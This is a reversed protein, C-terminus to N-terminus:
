CMFSMKGNSINKFENHFHDYIDRRSRIENDEVPTPFKVGDIELIEHIVDDGGTESPYRHVEKIKWNFSELFKHSVKYGDADICSGMICVEGFPSSLYRLKHRNIKKDFNAHLLLGQKTRCNFMNPSPWEVFGNVIFGGNTENENVLFTFRKAIKRIADYYQKKILM